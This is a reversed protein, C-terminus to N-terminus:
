RILEKAANFLDFVPNPSEELGVSEEKQPTYGSKFQEALADLQPSTKAELLEDFDSPRRGNHERVIDKAAKAKLQAAQNMLKLQHIIALRGEKNVSLTPITNLFLKVEGETVRNGFFNKADKVFDASLKEYEATDPNIGRQVSRLLSGIPKAFVGLFGPAEEVSKFLNYWAANPLSGKRTLEEMRNLRTDSSKAASGEKLLTDFREKSEAHSKQAAAEALKKEQFAQKMQLQKQNLALKGLTGAQKETLQGLNIPEGGESVQGGLLANIGQAFAQQSPSAVQQKIIPALLSENLQALSAAKESPFGLAELGKLTRAEQKQRHLDNLKQQALMKFGEGLGTGLQEGLNLPKGYRTDIFAM